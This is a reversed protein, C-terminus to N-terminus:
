NALHRKYNAGAEEDVGGSRRGCHAVLCLLLNEMVSDIEGLQDLLKIFGDLLSVPAFTIVLREPYLALTHKLNTDRRRCLYSTAQQQHAPTMVM